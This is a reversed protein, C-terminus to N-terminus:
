PNYQGPMWLVEIPLQRKTKELSTATSLGFIRQDVRRWGFIWRSDAHITGWDIGPIMHTPYIHLPKLLTRVSYKGHLGHACVHSTTFSSAYALGFTLPVPSPHCKATICFELIEM